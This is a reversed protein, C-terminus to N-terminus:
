WSPSAPEKRPDAICDGPTHVSGPACQHSTLRKVTRYVLLTLWRSPQQKQGFDFGSWSAHISEACFRGQPDRKTTLLQLMEAIRSDGQVWPFQSLVDLYRLIRYDTFPYKLKEWGSGIQSDHGAYKIRGRHDWCGLLFRVGKDAMPSSGLEPRQAM